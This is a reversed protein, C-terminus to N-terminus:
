LCVSETSGYCEIRDANNLSLRLCVRRFLQDDRGALSVEPQDRIPAPVYRDEAAQFAPARLM